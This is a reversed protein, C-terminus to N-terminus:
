PILSRLPNRPCGLPMGHEYIQIAVPYGRIAGAYRDEISAKNKPVADILHYRDIPMTWEPFRRVKRAELGAHGRDTHVFAQTRDM